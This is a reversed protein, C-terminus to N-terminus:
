KSNMKNACDKLFSRRDAGTLGKKDAANKCATAKDENTATGSGAKLCNDIFTKRDNGTLGKKEAADNCAKQKDATSSQGFTHHPTAIVAILSTALLLSIMAARVNRSFRAM